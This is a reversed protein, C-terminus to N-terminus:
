HKFFAIYNIKYNVSDRDLNSKSVPMKNQLNETKVSM